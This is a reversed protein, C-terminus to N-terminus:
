PAKQTGAQHLDRMIRRGLRTAAERGLPRSRDIAGAAVQEPKFRPHGVYKAIASGIIGGRQYGIQTAMRTQWGSDELDATPWEDAKLVRLSQTEFMAMVFTACTLGHGLDRPIYDGTPSFYLGNYTFGYPVNKCKKAILACFTALVRRNIEHLEIQAWCYNETPPENRLDLHERLNLNLPADPPIHYIIGIHPQDKTILRM